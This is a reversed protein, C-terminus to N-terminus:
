RVHKNYRVTFTGTPGKLVRAYRVGLPPHIVTAASPAVSTWDSYTAEPPDGDILARGTWNSLQVTFVSTTGASTAASITYDFADRVDIVESTTNSSRFLQESVTFGRM